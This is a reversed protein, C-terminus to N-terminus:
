KGVSNMSPKAPIPKHYLAMIAGTVLAVVGGLIVSIWADPTGVKDVAVRPLSLIGSGLMFNSIIVAVQITTLKVQPLSSKAQQKGSM